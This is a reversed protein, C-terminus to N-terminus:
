DSENEDKKEEKAPKGEEAPTEKKDEAPKEEPKASTEEKAEEKPKEEAPTEKKDEAPKEDAGATEDVPKEAPKVSDEEKKEPKKMYKKKLNELKKVTGEDVYVNVQIKGTHQGYDAEINKVIVLKSDAKLQSAVSDRVQERSPIKGEFAINGLIEIRGLLQNEKKETIEINM